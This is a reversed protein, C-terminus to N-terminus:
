SFKSSVIYKFMNWGPGYYVINDHAAKELGIQVDLDFARKYDEEWGIILRVEGLSARVLSKGTEFLTIPCLTEKPFWFLIYDVMGLAQFEYEIQAKADNTDFALDGVRRPNVVDFKDINIVSKIDNQWDPCNSIGGGLFISTNYFHDPLPDPSRIYM